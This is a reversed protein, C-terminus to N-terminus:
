GESSPEQEERRAERDLDSKHRALEMELANQKLLLDHNAEASRRGSMM